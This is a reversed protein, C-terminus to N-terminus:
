KYVCTKLIARKNAPIERQEDRLKEIRRRLSDDLNIVDLSLDVRPDILRPTLRFDTAYCYKCRALCTNYAGIDRSKTCGCAPRQAPDKQKDKLIVPTPLYGGIYALDICSGTIVGAQNLVQLTKGGEACSYVQLGQAAAEEVLIQALTGLVTSDPILVELNHETLLRRFNVQSKRYTDVVSTIVRSVFPAIKRLLFGFQEKHYAADICQSGRALLLPDYRFFIHERGIHRALTALAEIREALSPLNEELPTQTYPNVTVQFFLRGRFGAEELQPLGDLCPAPNKTWFVIAEVDRPDLSLPFVQNRFLPNVAVVYKERVRHMFWEWYFAPIDTRRSASIIVPKYVGM